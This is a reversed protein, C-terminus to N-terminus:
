YQAKSSLQTCHAVGWCRPCCVACGHSQVRPKHEQAWGLCSTPFGVEGPAFCFGRRQRCECVAGASGHGAALECGPSARDGRTSRLASAPQAAHTLAASKQGSPLESAKLSPCCARCLPTRRGRSSDLDGVSATKM